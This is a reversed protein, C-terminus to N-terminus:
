TAWVAHPHKGSEGRFANRTRSIMAQWCICPTSDDPIFTGNVALPATSHLHQVQVHGADGDLSLLCFSALNEGLAMDNLRSEELPLLSCRSMVERPFMGMGNRQTMLMRM